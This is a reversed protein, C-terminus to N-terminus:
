ALQDDEGDIILAEDLSDPLHAADVFSLLVDIGDPGPDTFEIRVGPESGGETRLVTGELALQSGDMPHLLVVRVREGPPLPRDCPAFLGGVAVDRTVAEISGERTEIRVTLAVRVRPHNRRVRGDEGISALVAGSTAAVWERWRPLAPSRLGYFNLGMGPNTDPGQDPGRWWAVRAFLEFEPQDPVSIRARVLRGLPLPTDTAVFVGADSYDQALCNIERGAVVLLVDLQGEYRPHRRQDTM